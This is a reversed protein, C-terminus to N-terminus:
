RWNILQRIDGPLYKEQNGEVIWLYNTEEDFVIDAVSYQFPWSPQEAIKIVVDDDIDQIIERLDGITM